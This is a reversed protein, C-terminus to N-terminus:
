GNFISGTKAGRIETKILNGKLDIFEINSHIVGRNWYTYTHSFGTIKATAQVGNKKIGVVEVYRSLVGCIVLAFLGFIGLETVIINNIFTGVMLMSGILVFAILYKPDSKTAM